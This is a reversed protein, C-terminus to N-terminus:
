TDSFYVFEVGSNIGSPYSSDSEMKYLTVGGTGNMQLLGIQNRNGGIVSLTTIPEPFFGSPVIAISNSTLTSKLQVQYLVAVVLKGIKRYRVTGTIVDSSTMTRTVWGTDAANLVKSTAM